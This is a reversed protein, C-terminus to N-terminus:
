SRLWSLGTDYPSREFVDRAIDREESLRTGENEVQIVNDVSADSDISFIVTPM